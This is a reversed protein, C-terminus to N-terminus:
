INSIPTNNTSALLSHISDSLFDDLSFHLQFIHSKRRMIIEILRIIKSVFATTLLFLTKLSLIYKGLFRLFRVVEGEGASPQKQNYLFHGSLLLSHVILALQGELHCPDCHIPFVEIKEQAGQVYFVFFQFIRNFLASFSGQLAWLKWRDTQQLLCNPKEVPM